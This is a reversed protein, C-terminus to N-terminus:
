AKKGGNGTLSTALIIKMFEMAETKTFGAKVYSEYMDHLTVACRDYEAKETVFSDIWNNKKPESM